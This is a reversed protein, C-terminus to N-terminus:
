WEPGQVRISFISLLFTAYFHDIKGYFIAANPDLGQWPVTEVVILGQLYNANKLKLTSVVSLSRSKLSFSVFSSKSAKRTGLPSECWDSYTPNASLLRWHIPPNVPLEPNATTVFFSAAIHVSPLHTLSICTM